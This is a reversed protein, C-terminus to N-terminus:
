GSVHSVEALQTNVARLMNVYTVGDCGVGRAIFFLSEVHLELIYEDM